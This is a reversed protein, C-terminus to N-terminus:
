EDITGHIHHLKYVRFQTNSKCCEEIILILIEITCKRCSGDKYEILYDM